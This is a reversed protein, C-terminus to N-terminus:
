GIGRALPRKKRSGLDFYDRLITEIVNSRKRNETEGMDDVRELVDRHLSISIKECNRAM